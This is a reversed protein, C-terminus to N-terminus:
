FSHYCLLTLCFFLAVFVASLGSKGGMAVGSASELFSTTTSVGFLSGLTTALADIQLTRELPTDRATGKGLLTHFIKAKIGIGSLTGLSDFLDTIMLTLIIPIFAFKLINLIELKLAIPELSAPSSFLQTPTQTIGFFIGLLSLIAIGLIFAGKIHLVYLALILLIGLTGLLTSINSLDGLLLNGNQLVFFGLGKLGITALFAGLGVCLAFRLNRPISKLIWVRFNTFSVITFIVGSVFVIGLAQQWHIGSGQVIGYAFYANLGMGVSMAVPTNAYLGCVLTALITVLTIATILADKPMGTHSLIESSVPIVYLMSLFITFGAMLETKVDSQKEKLKFYRELIKKSTTNEVNHSTKQKSQSEKQHM